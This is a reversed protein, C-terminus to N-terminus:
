KKGWKSFLKISIYYHFLGTLFGTVTFASLLKIFHSLSIDHSEGPSATALNISVVLFSGTITSIITSISIFTLLNPFKKAMYYITPLYVGLLFPLVSLYGLILSFIMYSPSSSIGYIFHVFPYVLICSASFSSLLAGFLINVFSYKQNM